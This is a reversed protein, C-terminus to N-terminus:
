LSAESGLAQLLPALFSAYKQRRGIAHRYIPQRVQTASATRVSRATQHFALCREDWALGCHALIRRTQGELDSVLDEYRVELIRGPPLVNRWHNMLTEYHRYFRGLEGLDYSYPINDDAFLTAFCSVCTDIPDRVTRIIRANPLALHILGALIFNTPLKDVIRTATSALRRLESVYRTGVAYFDQPGMAPVLEPFARSGNSKSRVKTLTNELQQIEGAGFVLPHSALIQEVLSTGSRPMGIVFVPVHSPEGLDQGLRQFLETTFTARVQEMMGIAAGEDYAIEQRKLQNGAVLHHFSDEHRGLAEYTRALAFHVSTKDAVSLAQDALEELSRLYPSGQSLPMMQALNSLYRASRSALRVAREAAQTSSTLRGLIMLTTSLNYHAAAVNPEITIGQHYAAIAEELAGSQRLASGLNFHAVALHPSLRLAQKYAAIAQDLRGREQLANGLNSYAEAFGPEIRIADRYAVIAEDLKGAQRLANGRDIRKGSRLRVRAHVPDRHTAMSIRWWLAGRCNEILSRHSAVLNPPAIGGASRRM